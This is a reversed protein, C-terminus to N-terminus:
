GLLNTYAARMAGYCECAAAELGPRDLITIEGRTYRILKRRQLASLEAPALSEQGSLYAATDKM